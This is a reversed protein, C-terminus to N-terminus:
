HETYSISFNLINGIGTAARDLAHIQPRECAPITTEFGPPLLPTQRKRTNHTTVCVYMCVYIVYVCTYMCLNCVCVYVYTSVYYKCVYQVCVVYMYVYLCVYVDYMCVDHM